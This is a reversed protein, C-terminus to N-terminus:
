AAIGHQRKWQRMDDWGAARMRADTADLMHQAVAPDDDLMAAWYAAMEEPRKRAMLYRAHKQILQDRIKAKLAPSKACRPPPRDLARSPSPWGNAPQGEGNLASDRGQGAPRSIPYHHVPVESTHADFSRDCTGAPGDSRCKCKLAPDRYDAAPSPLSTRDDSIGGRNAGVLGVRAPTRKIAPEDGNQVLDAGGLRAARAEEPNGKENDLDEEERARAAEPSPLPESDSCTSGTLKFAQRPAGRTRPPESDFMEAQKPDHERNLGKQTKHDGNRNARVMRRCYIVGREDRSFVEHEELEKLLRRVMVPTAGVYRALAAVSPPIRDGVLLYGGNAACLTLLEIWLGRASLSCLQLGPENHWDNFFWRTSPNKKAM